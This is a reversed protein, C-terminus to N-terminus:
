WGEKNDEDAFKISVELLHNLERIIEKEEETEPPRGSEIIWIIFDYCINMNPIIYDRIEERTPLWKGRKYSLNGMKESLREFEDFEMLLERKEIREVYQLVFSRLQTKQKDNLNAKKLVWLFLGLYYEIDTIYDKELEDNTPILIDKTEPLKQTTDYIKKYALESFQYPREEKKYEVFLLRRYFAQNIQKSIEPDAGKEMIYLLLSVYSRFDSKIMREIDTSTFDATNIHFKEVKDIMQDYVAFSILIKEM